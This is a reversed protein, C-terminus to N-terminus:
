SRPGQRTGSRQPEVWRTSSRSCRRRSGSPGNWAPSTPPARCTSGARGPLGAVLADAAQSTGPGDLLGVLALTPVAIEALRGAAPPDLGAADMVAVLDARNAFPVDETESRGFGRTDYRAVRHRATLAAWQPDWMHADAIGAHVLM